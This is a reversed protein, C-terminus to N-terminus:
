RSRRRRHARAGAARQNGREARAAAHHLGGPLSRALEHIFKAFSGQAVDLDHLAGRRRARSPGAAASALSRRLVRSVRRVGEALKGYGSLFTLTRTVAAEDFLLSQAPSQAAERAIGRAALRLSDVQGAEIQQVRDPDRSDDQGHRCSRRHFLSGERHPRRRARCRLGPVGTEFRAFRTRRRRTCPPRAPALLRWAGPLKLKREPSLCLASEAATNKRPWWGACTRWSARADYVIGDKITYDVGGVRRPQGEADLRVHGTGYLVKLNALPNERHRVLDALKGAEIRASRRAAGLAQAGHLTAARIVELPHFGAERLLELEQITGFGYLKYIYGSDSGVTVRGGRNKYDNVFAM